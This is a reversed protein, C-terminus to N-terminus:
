EGLDTRFSGGHRIILRANDVRGLPRCGPGIGDLGFDDEMRNALEHLRKVEKRM